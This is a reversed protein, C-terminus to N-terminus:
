SFKIVASLLALFINSNIAYFKSRAVEAVYVENMIMFDGVLTNLLKETCRCKFLIVNKNSGHM